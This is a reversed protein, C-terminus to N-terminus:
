IKTHMARYFSLFFGVFLLIHQRERQFILCLFAMHLAPMTKSLLLLLCFSLCFQPRQTKFKKLFFLKKKFIKVVHFCVHKLHPSSFYHLSAVCRLLWSSATLPGVYKSTVVSTDSFCLMASKKCLLSQIYHFFMYLVTTKRWFDQLTCTSM